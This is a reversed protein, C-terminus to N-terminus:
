TPTLKTLMRKYNTRAEEETMGFRTHLKHASSAVKDQKTAMIVLESRLKLLPESRVEWRRQRNGVESQRALGKEFREDSHEVQKKIGWYSFIGGLFVGIFGFLAPLLWEM